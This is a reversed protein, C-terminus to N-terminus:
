YQIVEKCIITKNPHFVFACHCHHTKGFDANKFAGVMILEMPDVPGNEEPSEDETPM